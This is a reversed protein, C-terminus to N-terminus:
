DVGVTVMHSDKQSDIMFIVGGGNFNPSPSIRRTNSSNESSALILHSILCAFSESLGLYSASEQTQPGGSCVFGM